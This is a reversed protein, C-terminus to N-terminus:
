QAIGEAARQKEWILNWDVDYQRQEAAREEKKRM